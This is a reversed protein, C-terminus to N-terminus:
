LKTLVAVWLVEHQEKKRSTCNKVTQEKGKIVGEEKKKKM